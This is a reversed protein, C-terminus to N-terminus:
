LGNHVGFYLLIVITMRGEERQPGRVQHEELGIKRSNNQPKLRKKLLKQDYKLLKQFSIKPRRKTM